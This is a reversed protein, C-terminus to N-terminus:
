PVVAPQPRSLFRAALTPVILFVPITCYVESTLWVPQLAELPCFHPVPGCDLIIKLFTCMEEHLTGTIRTLNDRFKFKELFIKSFDEIVFKRFIRRTPASNYWVSLCASMIFNVTAKRFKAFAGLFETGVECLVRDAEM